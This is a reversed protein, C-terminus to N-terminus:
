SKYNSCIQRKRKECLATLTMFLTYDGRPSHLIKGVTRVNSSLQIIECCLVWPFEKEM